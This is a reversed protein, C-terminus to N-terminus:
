LNKRVQATCEPPAFSEHPASIFRLAEEHKNGWSDMKLAENQMPLTIIIQGLAGSIKVNIAGFSIRWTDSRRGDHGVKVVQNTLFIFQSHTLTM